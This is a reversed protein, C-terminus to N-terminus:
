AGDRRGGPPLRALLDDLRRELERVRARALDRGRRMAEAQRRADHWERNALPTEAVLSRIRAEDASEDVAALQEEALALEARARLLERHAEDLQRELARREM